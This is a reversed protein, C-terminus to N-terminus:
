NREQAFRKGPDLKQFIAYCVVAIGVGMVVDIIYHQKCLLTSLCILAAVIFTYIRFGKSISEQKRIGLYAYTSLMCHYSPALNYAMEGGDAMYVSHMLQNFIGLESTAVLIGEAVRDMYTPVLCFFVFGILQAITFGIVYNVFNRRPTAAVVAPAMIWFIFSYVYVIVFIPVLPFLDDIVPIKLLLAHDATGLVHSLNMGWMYLQRQLAFFAIGLLWGWWPIRKVRGLITMETVEKETM